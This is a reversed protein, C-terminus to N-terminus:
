GVPTACVGRIDGFHQALALAKAEGVDSMGLAYLFRPLTTHKSALIASQLKQASKEGHTRAGRAARRRDFLDAANAVWRRGGATEMLNDGLGQIDLARRSAFHKIEEKRQAPCILRGTCRAVAQDAQARGAIRV